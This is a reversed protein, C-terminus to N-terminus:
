YLVVCFSMRELYRSDVISYGWKALHAELKRRSSLKSMRSSFNKLDLCTLFASARSPRTIKSGAASSVIKYFRELDDCASTKAPLSHGAMFEKVAAVQLEVKRSTDVAAVEIQNIAVTLPSDM